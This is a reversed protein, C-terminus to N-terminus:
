GSSKRRRDRRDARRLRGCVWSSSVVHRVGIHQRLMPRRIMTARHSTGTCSRLMAFLQLRASASASRVTRAAVSAIEARRRIKRDTSPARPARPPRMCVIGIRSDGSVTIPRNSLTHPHAAGPSAPVAPHLIATPLLAYATSGTPTAIIISDLAPQLHVAAVSVAFEIM